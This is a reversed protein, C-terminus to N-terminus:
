AKILVGNELKFISDAYNVVSMDHSIILIAPRNEICDLNEMIEKVKVIDLHNTPEDLILLYPQKILARAIAIRQCEGGSLLVGEEGIQTDYNEPLKQIFDDALTQRCVKIMEQEDIDTIGYLINERISGSFLPPHQMVVGFSQRLITMDIEEYPTNDAFLKGQDPAYLGLLLNIITTKGSGNEGIIALKSGKEIRLDINNLVEKKDYKFSVSQLLLSKNFSQKKKGNYPKLESASALNYLTMMSENGTLVDPFAGTINTVHRNLFATAIYFSLFEGLTMTGTVVFIGGAIIIIIGALGTLVDQVQANIAFIFAMKGTKDQLDKLYYSQRKIEQKEASRIITLDMYQLVFSIGKSFIEFARQFTYVKKKIKKGMYHNAFYILPFLSIIILLLKWNLLFLVILLVLSTFLAPFIRSILANSMNCLRETDQVIRAHIIKQDMQTHFKRSFSYLRFLLDERLKYIATNIIKINIARFWVSTASNLIRLVFIAIGALILLNIKKDPILDDFAYRVLL